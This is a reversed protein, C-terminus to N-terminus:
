ADNYVSANKKKREKIKIARELIKQVYNVKSQYITYQRKKRQIFSELADEVTLCAYKKRAKLNVFRKDAGTLGFADMRSATIWIGCPTEKEIVYWVAEIYTSSGYEDREADIIVSYSHDSIRWAAKVGAPPKGFPYTLKYM